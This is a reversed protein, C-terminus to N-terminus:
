NPCRGSSILNPTYVVVMIQSKLKEKINPNKAIGITAANDCPVKM